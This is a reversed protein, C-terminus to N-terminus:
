CSKTRGQFCSLTHTAQGFIKPSTLRLAPILVARVATRHRPSVRLRPRRHCVVLVRAQESLIPRAKGCRDRSFYSYTHLCLSSFFGRVEIALAESTKSAGKEPHEAQRPEDFWDDEAEVHGESGDSGDSEIAPAFDTKFCRFDSAITPFTVDRGPYFSSASFKFDSM